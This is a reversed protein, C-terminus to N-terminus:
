LLRGKMQKIKNKLKQLYGKITNDQNVRKYFPFDSNCKREFVFAKLFDLYEDKDIYGEEADFYCGNFLMMTFGPESYPNENYEQLLIGLDYMMRVFSKLNEENDPYNNQPFTFILDIFISYDIEKSQILYEGLVSLKQKNDSGCFALDIIIDEYASQENLANEIYDYLEDSYGLILMTKFYLAQEATM